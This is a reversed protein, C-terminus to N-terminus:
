VTIIIYKIYIVQLIARYFVSQLSESSTIENFRDESQCALMLSNRCLYAGKKKLCMSM